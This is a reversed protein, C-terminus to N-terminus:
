LKTRKFPKMAMRSALELTSNSEVVKTKGIFYEMIMTGIVPLVTEWPVMGLIMSIVSSM